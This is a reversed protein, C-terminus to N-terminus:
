RTGGEGAFGIEFEVRRNASNPGADPSIDNLSERGVAVMTESPVGRAVLADFVVQARKQSLSSNRSQPGRVDTYGVVRLFVGAERVLTALADFQANAVTADRLDTENTFFIANAAIFRTLRDLATPEAAKIVPAAPPAPPPIEARVLAAHKLATAVSSLRQTQGALREAGTAYDSSALSGDGTRSAKASAPPKASTMGSAIPSHALTDVAATLGATRESLTKAIAAAPDSGPIVSALASRTATVVARTAGIEELAATIEAPAAANGRAVLGRLQELDLSAAALSETARDLARSAIQRPLENGLEALQRRLNAIDPSADPGPAPLVAIQNDIETGPLAAALRRTLAAHAESSPALGTLMVFKGRPTVTLRTPYGRIDGSTEIIATAIDRVRGTEYRVYASWGIWALLPLGILVALVKLPSVSGAPNSLEDHKAAINTTLQTGLGALEYQADADGAAGLHAVTTLFAADIVQEVPGAATGGCKAALLLSPSARLYVCSQGLDIQRLANENSELAESVFSNIATLVGGLVHDHNSARAADSQEPWRAILEGSGRRILLLEEVNLRQTDAIALEAMSRGTTISRLRLMMPNQELRRNVEAVLDKMASAVYARVMQGTMPYIVEVIEDRSNRIETRVTRVVLPAVASAVDDHRHAEADVLARDIVSSVARVMSDDSGVREAIADIRSALDAHRTAHDARAGDLGLAIERRWAESTEARVAELAELLDARTATGDAALADIRRALDALTATENDFLLQKLKTVGQSM